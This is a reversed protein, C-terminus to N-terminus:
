VLAVLVQWMVLDQFKVLLVQEVAAVALMIAVVTLVAVM